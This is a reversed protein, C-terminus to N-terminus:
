INGESTYAMLFHLNILFAYKIFYGNKRKLLSMHTNIDNRCQFANTIKFSFKNLMQYEDIM